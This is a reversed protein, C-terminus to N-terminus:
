TQWMWRVDVGMERFALFCALSVDIFICHSLSWVFAYAPISACTHTDEGAAKQAAPKAGSVAIGVDAKKLAPADNVGDGCMGVLHGMQRFTQVILYKHEPLVKWCALSWDTLQTRHLLFAM